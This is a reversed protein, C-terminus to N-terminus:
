EEEDGRCCDESYDDDAEALRRRQRERCGACVQYVRGSLGEEYDRAPVRSPAEAQCWECQGATDV